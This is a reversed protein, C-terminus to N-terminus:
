QLVSDVGKPPYLNAWVQARIIPDNVDIENIASDIDTEAVEPYKKRAIEALIRHSENRVISMM